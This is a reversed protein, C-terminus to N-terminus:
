GVEPGLDHIGVTGGLEGVDDAVVPEVGRVQARVASRNGDAARHVSDVQEDEGRLLPQARGVHHALQVEAACAEGLAVDVVRLLVRAAEESEVQGLGVEVADEVPGPVEDATVGVVPQLVQATGVVLHLDVPEPDRRALDLPRDACQVAHVVHHDAELRDPPLVHQDGVVDRAGREVRPGQPLLGRPAQGGEGHRRVEAPPRGEGAGRAALEVLPRQGQGAAVVRRASVLRGGRRRLFPEGPEPRVQEVALPYPAVVVEERQASVAEGGDAQERVDRLVEADLQAEVGHELVGAEVVQGLDDAGGAGAPERADGPERRGVVVLQGVCLSPEPEGGLELGGGLGVVEVRDVLDAALDHGLPKFAREQPQDALVLAQARHEAFPRVTVHPLHDAGRCGHVEVELVDRRRRLVGQRLEDPPGEVQGPPREQSGGEGLGRVPAVDEGEGDVVADAVGPGQAHERAVQELEVVGCGRARRGGPEVDLVLVVRGPLAGAQRGLM